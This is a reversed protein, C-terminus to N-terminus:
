ATHMAQSSHRIDIALFDEVPDVAVSRSKGARRRWAAAAATVPLGAKAPSRRTQAGHPTVRAGRDTDAAHCGRREDSYRM